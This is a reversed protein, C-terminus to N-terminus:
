APRGHKAELERAVDELTKSFDQSVPQPGKGSKGKLADLHFSLWPKADPAAFSIVLRDVAAAIGAADIAREVQRAVEPKVPWLADVKREWLAALVAATLPYEEPRGPATDAPLGGGIGVRRRVNGGAGGESAFASVCSLLSPDAHCPREVGGTEQGYGAGTRTVDAHRGTSPGRSKRKRDADRVQKQIHFGAWKKWNHVRFGEPVQELLGVAVMHRCFEDVDGAWGSGRALLFAADPGHVEGEPHIEVFWEWMQVAYSWARPDGLRRELAKAEDGRTFGAAVKFWLPEAM